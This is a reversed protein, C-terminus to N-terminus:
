KVKIPSAKYLELVHPDKLGSTTDLARNSHVLEKLYGVPWSPVVSVPFVLTEGQILCNLWCSGKTPDLM